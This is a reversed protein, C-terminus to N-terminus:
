VLILATTRERGREKRWVESREVCQLLAIKISDKSVLIWHSTFIMTVEAMPLTCNLGTSLNFTDSVINLSAVELVSRRHCVRGLHRYKSRV